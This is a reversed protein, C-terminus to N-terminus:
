ALVQLVELYLFGCVARDYYTAVNRATQLNGRHSPFQLYINTIRLRTNNPYFLEDM